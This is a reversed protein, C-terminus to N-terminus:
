HTLQSIIKQLEELSNAEIEITIAGLPCESPSDCLSVKGVIAVQKNIFIHTKNGIINRELFSKVHTDINRQKIRLIFPELVSIDQTEFTMLEGVGMKAKKIESPDVRFLKQLSLLIKNEDETPRIEVSITIKVM